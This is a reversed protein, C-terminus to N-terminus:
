QVAFAIRMGLTYHGPVTCILVYSGSSLELSLEDREDVALLRTRGLVDLGTEDVIGGDTPLADAALDTRIVVFTHQTTGQNEVDFTVDGAAATAVAPEVAFERLSVEIDTAAPAADDEAGDESATPPAPEDGDDGGGCGVLLAGLIALTGILAAVAAFRSISM